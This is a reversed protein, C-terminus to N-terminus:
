EAGSSSPISDRTIGSITPCTQGETLGFLFAALCEPVRERTLVLRLPSHLPVSRILQGIDQPTLLGESVETLVQSLYVLQYRDSEVAEHAEALGQEARYADALLPNANVWCADGYRRIVIKSALESAETLDIPSPGDGFCGIFVEGSQDSANQLLTALQTSESLPSAKLFQISAM